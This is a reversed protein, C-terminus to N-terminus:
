HTARHDDHSYSKHGGPERESPNCRYPADLQEKLHQLFLASHSPIHRVDENLGCLRQLRVEKPEALLQKMTELLREVDLPKEMFAGVGAARAVALQDAQGTIIIVPLFPNALTVREFTEWGGRVPLGIDLLMLDVRNSEFQELAEEGDKAVLVRYGEDALVKKLAERVALIDDVVLVSPQQEPPKPPPRPNVRSRPQPRERTRSAPRSSGTRTAPEATM